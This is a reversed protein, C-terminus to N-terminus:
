RSGNAAGLGNRIGGYSGEPAETAKDEIVEIVNIDVGAKGDKVYYFLNQSDMLLSKITITVKYAEPIIKINTSTNNNTAIEGTTIDILRTTGVNVVKMDSIVAVPFRKFGPIEMVYLSPPDMRALSKRNPLNQYTLTFLFNWNDIINQKNETNFLHFTTTVTDGTDNPTFIKITEKATGPNNFQQQVDVLNDWDQVTQDVGIPSAAKAIEWWAKEIAGISTKSSTLGKSAIGMADKGDIKDWKGSTPSLGQPNLYPLHYVFGTKKGNYLGSYPSDSTFSGPNDSNYGALSAPLVTTYGFMSTQIAGALNLPTNFLGTNERDLSNGLINYDKQQQIYLKLAQMQGSSTQKYETLGIKPISKKVANSINLAWAFDEVIDYKIEISPDPNLVPAGGGINKTDVVPTYTSVAM